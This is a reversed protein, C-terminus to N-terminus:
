ADYWAQTPASRPATNTTANRTEIEGLGAAHYREHMLTIEYDGGSQEIMKGNMAIHHTGPFYAGWAVADLGPPLYNSVTPEGLVRAAEETYFPRVEAEQLVRELRKNDSYAFSPFAIDHDRRRERARIREALRDITEQPAVRLRTNVFM